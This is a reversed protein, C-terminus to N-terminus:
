IFLGDGPWDKRIDLGTNADTTGPVDERMAFGLKLVHFRLEGDTILGTDHQGLVEYLRLKLEDM